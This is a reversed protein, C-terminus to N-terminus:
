IRIRRRQAQGQSNPAGTQQRHGSVRAAPSERDQDAKRKKKKKKKKAKKRNKKASSGSLIPPALNAKFTSSATPALLRAGTGELLPSTARSKLAPALAGGVTKSLMVLYVKKKQERETLSVHSSHFGSKQVRAAYKPYLAAEGETPPAPRSAGEERSLRALRQAAAAEAAAAAAAADESARAKEAALRVEEEQAVRVRAEAADKEAETALQDAEQRAAIADDALKRHEEESAILRQRVITSRAGKVAAKTKEAREVAAVELAELESCKARLQEALLTLPNLPDLVNVAGRRRAPPAVVTKSTKGPSSSADGPQNKQAMGLSKRM